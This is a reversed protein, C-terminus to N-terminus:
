GRQAMSHLHAHHVRRRLLARAPSLRPAHRQLLPQQLAHVQALQQVGSFNSKPAHIRGAHLTGCLIRMRFATELLEPFSQKLRRTTRWWVWECGTATSSWCRPTTTCTSCRRPRRRYRQRIRTHERRRPSVCRLALHRLQPATLAPWASTSSRLLLSSAYVIGDVVIFGLDRVQELSFVAAAPSSM